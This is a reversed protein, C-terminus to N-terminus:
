LILVINTFRGNIKIILTLRGQAESTSHLDVNIGIFNNVLANNVAEKLHEKSKKSYKMAGSACFLSDRQYLKSLISSLECVKESNGLEFFLNFKSNYHFANLIKKVVKIV